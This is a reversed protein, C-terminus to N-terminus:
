AFHKFYDREVMKGTNFRYVTCDNFVNNDISVYVNGYKNSLEKIVDFLADEKMESVYADIGNIRSVNKRIDIKNEKELNIVDKLFDIKNKLSKDMLTIKTTYKEM